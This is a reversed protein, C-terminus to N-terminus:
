NRNIKSRDEHVGAEICAYVVKASIMAAVRHFHDGKNPSGDDVVCKASFYKPRSIALRSAEYLSFSEMEFASLKRQQVGLQAVAAEDGIVASGSSGPAFFVRPRLDNMGDPYENKSLVIERGIGDAFGNASILTDIRARLGPDLQVCYLEPEFGSPTFKGHDNQHCVDAIVVDYIKAARPVGGCIGSMCVLRPRFMLITQTCVIAASVLGPRPATVIVGFRGGIKIRRCVLECILEMKEVEFGALEFAEAEKPLACVIVFEFQQAPVCSALKQHLSKKWEGEEDYTIVTIDRKNLEEFNEVARQPYLTLAVVPTKWNASSSERTHQIIQETMDRPEEEGPFGRVVLDAIILDFEESKVSLVYDKLYEVVKIESNLQVERTAAVIADKKGGNDELILIKM